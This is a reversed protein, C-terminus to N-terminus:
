MEPPRWSGRPDVVPLVEQNIFTTGNMYWVADAGTVSNRWILDLDDPQHRCEGGLQWSLRRGASDGPQYIDDPEYWVSNAGTVSNRWILDPFTATSM